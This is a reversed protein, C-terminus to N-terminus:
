APDDALTEDIIARCEACCQDLLRHMEIVIAALSEGEAIADAERQEAEALAVLARAHTAPDIVLPLQTIM